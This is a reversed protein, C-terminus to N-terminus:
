EKNTNYDANLINMAKLFKYLFIFPGVIILSGLIDWGWFTGASISYPLNRAQLEAGIRNCIRHNWVFSAIGLTIPAVIFVLLCYHMTHKSDRKTAILNIEESIHSMVVLGYIGFTIISLLITKLLGRNTRLM